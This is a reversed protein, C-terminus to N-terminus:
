GHTATRGEPEELSLPLVAKLEHPFVKVFRPLLEEWNELVRRARPSATTEFHRFILSRVTEVEDPDTVPELDVSSLNCRSAAFEGTEDLV